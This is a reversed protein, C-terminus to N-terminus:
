DGSDGGPLNEKGLKDYLRKIVQALGKDTIAFVVRYDKGTIQGLRRSDGFIILPVSKSRCKDIFTKRTNYACDQALILLSASNGSIANKCRYTGSVLNRGANALGIMSYIRENNDM